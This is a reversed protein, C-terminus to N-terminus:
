TFELSRIGSHQFSDDLYKLLKTKNIADDTAEDGDDEATVYFDVRSRRETGILWDITPAIENYVIPEQGREKLTEAEERTWQDNDYAAEDRAMLRRNAAQASAEDYFWAMRQEHREALTKAEPSYSDAPQAADGPTGAGDSDKVALQADVIAQASLIAERNPKPPRKDETRPQPKIPPRRAM